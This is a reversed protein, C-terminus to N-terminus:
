NLLEIGRSIFVDNTNLNTDYGELGYAIEPTNLFYSYIFNDRFLKSLRYKQIKDAELNMDGVIIFNDNIKPIIGDKFLNLSRNNPILKTHLNYLDLKKGNVNLEYCLNQGTSKKDNVLNIIEDSNEGNEDINKINISINGDNLINDSVFLLSNSKFRIFTNFDIAPEINPKTNILQLDGLMPNICDIVDCVPNIEQLCLIFNPMVRLKRLEDIISNFRTQYDTKNEESFVLDLYYDDPFREKFIKMNIKDEDKIKLNDIEGITLESYLKKDKGHTAVRLFIQTDPYLKFEEKFHEKFIEDNTVPIKGSGQLVQNKDPYNNKIYELNASIANVINKMVTEKFVENDNELNFKTRLFNQNKNFITMSRFSNKQPINLSILQFNYENFKFIKEIYNHDGLEQEILYDDTFTHIKEQNTESNISKM